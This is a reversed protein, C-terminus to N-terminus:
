SVAYGARRLLRRLGYNRAEIKLVVKKTERAAATTAHGKPM